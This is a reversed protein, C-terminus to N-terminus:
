AARTGTRIDASPDTLARELEEVRRTAGVNSLDPGLFGGTGNLLHCETCNGKGRFFAEGNLASGASAAPRGARRLEPLSRLYAVVREADAESLASPPMPTGPLGSRVIAMIERDTSARKFTGSGLDVNPIADGNTGHCSACSAMYIAGGRELDAPTMGHVPDQARVAALAMFVILGFLPAVATLRQLRM